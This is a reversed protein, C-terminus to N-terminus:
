PFGRGILIVSGRSKMAGLLVILWNLASHTPDFLGGASRRCRLRSLGRVLLMRAM